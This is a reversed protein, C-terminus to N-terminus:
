QTVASTAEFLSAMWDIEHQAHSWQVSVPTKCMCARKSDRLDVVVGHDRCTQVVVGSGHDCPEVVQQGFGQLLVSGQGRFGCGGDGWTGVRGECRKGNLVRARKDGWGLRVIGKDCIIPVQPTAAAAAASLPLSLTLYWISVLFPGTLRPYM